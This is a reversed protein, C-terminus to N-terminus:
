ISCAISELLSGSSRNALNISEEHVMFRKCVSLIRLKKPVKSTTYINRNAWIVGMIISRALSVMGQGRLQPCGCHRRFLYSGEIMSGRRMSVHYFLKSDVSEAARLPDADHMEGKGFFAKCWAVVIYLIDSKTHFRGSLGM